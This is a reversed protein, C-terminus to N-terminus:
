TRVSARTETTHMKQAALVVSFAPFVKINMMSPEFECVYERTVGFGIERTNEKEFNTSLLWWFYGLLVYRCM